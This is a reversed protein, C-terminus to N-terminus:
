HVQGASDTPKKERDYKLMQRYKGSEDYQVRVGHCGLLSHIAPQDQENFYWKEIENGADDHVMRVGSFGFPTQRRTRDPGVNWQEKANGRDDFTSLRGPPHKPNDMIGGEEDLHWLELERDHADLVRRKGFYGEPQAIKKGDLGFFWQEVPNGRDDLKWQLRSVGRTNATPRKQEDMFQMALLLCNEDREFQVGRIGPEVPTVFTVSKVCGRNDTQVTRSPEERVALAPSLVPVYSHEGFPDCFIERGSGNICAVETEGGSSVKMRFTQQRIASEQGSLKGVCAPKGHRLVVFRCFTFPLSAPEVVSEPGPSIPSEKERDQHGSKKSCSVLLLILGLWPFVRCKRIANM